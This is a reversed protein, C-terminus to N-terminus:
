DAALDAVAVAAAATAVASAAQERRTRKERLAKLPRELSLAGNAPSSLSLSLLWHVYYTSIATDHRMVCSRKGNQM